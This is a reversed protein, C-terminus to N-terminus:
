FTRGVRLGVTLVGVDKKEGSGSLRVPLYQYRAVAAASWHRDLLYEGGGAVEAGLHRSHSLAGNVDAVAVGGELFPVLRFVDFALSFGASAVSARATEGLHPHWSAGVAAWVASQDTLGYRGELRGGLGSVPNGDRVLLAFAPAASLQWDGADVARAPRPVVACLFLAGVLFARELM